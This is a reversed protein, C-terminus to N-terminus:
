GSGTAPKSVRVACEPKVRALLLDVRLLHLWFKVEKLLKTLEAPAARLVKPAVFILSKGVHTGIDATSM